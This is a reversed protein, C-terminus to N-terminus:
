GVDMIRKIQKNDLAVPAIKGGLYAKMAEQM